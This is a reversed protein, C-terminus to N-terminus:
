QHMGTNKLHEIFLIYQRGFLFLFLLNELFAIVLYWINKQSSPITLCLPIFFLFFSCKSDSMRLMIQFFIIKLDKRYLLAIEFNIVEGDSPLLCLICKPFSSAAPTGPLPLTSHDRSNTRELLCCPLRFQSLQSSLRQHPFPARAGEGDDAGSLLPPRDKQKKSDEKSYSRNSSSM